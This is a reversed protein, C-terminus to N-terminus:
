PITISKNITSTCPSGNLEVTHKIIADYNGSENYEHSITTDKNTVKNGDGFNWEVELIPEAFIPDQTLTFHVLKQNASDLATNVTAFDCFDPIDPDVKCATQMLIFVSSLLLGIILVEKKM